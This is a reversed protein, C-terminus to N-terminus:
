KKPTGAEKKMKVLFKVLANSIEKMESFIDIFEDVRKDVGASILQGIAYNISNNIARKEDYGKKSWYRRTKLTGQVVGIAYNRVLKDAKKVRAV